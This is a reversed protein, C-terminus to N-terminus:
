TWVFEGQLYSALAGLAKAQLNRFFIFGALGGMSTGPEVGKWFTFLRSAATM